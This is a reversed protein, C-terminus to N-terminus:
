NGAKNNLQEDAGGLYVANVAAQGVMQYLETYTGTLAKDHADKFLHHVINNVIDDILRKLKTEDHVKVATEIMHQVDEPIDYM